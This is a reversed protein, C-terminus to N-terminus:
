KNYSDISLYKFWAFHKRSNIYELNDDNEYAEEELSIEHYCNNQKDRINFIRIILYELLYWIYFACPSLLMWWWSAGFLILILLIPALLIFCDLMQVTHIKEHNKDEETLESKALIIGFLNMLKYSGFPFWDNYIIKM